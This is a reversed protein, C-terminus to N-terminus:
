KIQSKGNVQYDAFRSESGEEERRSRPGGWPRQPDTSLPGRRTAEAQEADRQAFDKMFFDYFWPMTDRPKPAHGLLRAAHRSKYKSKSEM